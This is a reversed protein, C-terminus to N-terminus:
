LKKTYGLIVHMTAMTVVDIPVDALVAGVISYSVDQTVQEKKAKTRLTLDLDLFERKFKDFCQQHSNM